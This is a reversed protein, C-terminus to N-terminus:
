IGQDKAKSPKDFQRTKKQLALKQTGNAHEEIDVLMLLAQGSKKTIKTKMHLSAAVHM